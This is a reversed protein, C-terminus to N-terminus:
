FDLKNWIWRSFSASVRGCGLRCVAPDAQAADSRSFDKLREETKETPKEPNDALPRNSHIRSEVKGPKREELHAQKSHEEELKGPLASAGDHRTQRPRVKVVVPREQTLKDAVIAYGPPLKRLLNSIAANDEDIDPFFWDADEATGGTLECFSGNFTYHRAGQYLTHVLFGGEPKYLAFSRISPADELIVHESEYGNANALMTYDWNPPVNTIAYYGNTNTQTSFIVSSNGVVVEAHPIPSLNEGDLVYGEVTAAGANQLCCVSLMLSFIRRGVAITAGDWQLLSGVGMRVRVFSAMVVKKMGMGGRRIIQKIASRQVLVDVQEALEQQLRREPLLERLEMGLLIQSILPMIRPWQIAVQILTDVFRNLQMQLAETELWQIYDHCGSCPKFRHTKVYVNLQGALKSPSGMLELFSFQDRWLYM